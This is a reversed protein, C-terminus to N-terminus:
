ANGPGRFHAVGTGFRPGLGFFLNIEKKPAPYLMYNLSINLNEINSNSGEIHSNLHITDNPYRGEPPRREFGRKDPNFGVSVRVASKNAFHYKLSFVIPIISRKSFNFGAEYQFALKGKSLSNRTSDGALKTVADQSFITIAPLMFLFMVIIRSNMIM